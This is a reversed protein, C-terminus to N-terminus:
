PLTATLLLDLTTTEGQAFLRVQGPGVEAAQWHNLWIHYPEAQAGALGEAGRSFQEQAYFQEAAIDSITFHALYVQNTRWDSGDAEAAFQNEPVLASRFFTLQYGFPR